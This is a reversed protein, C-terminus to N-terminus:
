IHHPSVATREFACDRLQPMKELQSFCSDPDSSRSSNHSFEPPLRIEDINKFFEQTGAMSDDIQKQVNRRNNNESTLRNAVLKLRQTSTPNFEITALSSQFDRFDVEM